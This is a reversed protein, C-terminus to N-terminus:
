RYVEEEDFEVERNYTSKFLSAQANIYAEKM